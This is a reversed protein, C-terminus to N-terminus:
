TQPIASITLTMIFPFVPHFSSFKYSSCLINGLFSAVANWNDQSQLMLTVINDPSPDDRLEGCLVERAETLRDCVFFTHNADDMEEPSYICLPSDTRIYRFLYAHFM